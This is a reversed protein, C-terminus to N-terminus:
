DLLFRVNVTVAIDMEGPALTQGGSMESDMSMASRYMVTGPTNHQSFESISIAKGIKQGLAGAYEEAKMKANKVANKRAQSLLDDRNSASFQVGDIRNIGSELLANMLPEYTKIDTVKISIAQNASYNYTKTNYEYNKSLRVFDTSVYKDAIGLDKITQIVNSIIRDNQQKLEKANTGTNEARVKVTVEDPTVTVKGQGNVDVTNMSNQQATITMTMAILTLLLFTTKKM